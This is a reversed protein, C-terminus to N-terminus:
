SSTDGQKKLKDTLRKVISPNSVIETATKFYGIEDEYASAKLSFARSESETARIDEAKKRYDDRIMRLRALYHKGFESRSFTVAEHALALSQNAM